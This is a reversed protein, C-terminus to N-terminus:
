DMGFVQVPLPEPGQPPLSEEGLRDEAVSGYAIPGM